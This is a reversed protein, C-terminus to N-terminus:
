FCVIRGPSLLLSLVRLHKGPDGSALVSVLKGHIRVQRDTGRVRASGM